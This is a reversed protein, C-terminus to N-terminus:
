FGIIGAGAHDTPLGLSQVAGRLLGTIQRSRDADRAARLVAVQQSLLAALVATAAPAAMSTGSMVGYSAAPLCSVIGLGPAAGAIEPGINSFAAVFIERDVPSFPGMVDVGESSWSPFTGIKGLASIAIAVPWRAPYSVSKRGGNGAAVVAVTGREFASQLASEVAPDPSHLELSLNILDCGDDVARDIARVVDYSSAGTGANPFVRYSMISVGAAIGRKGTLPSGRGAIIGAVHTGHGANVGAPGSDGADGEERVFVSGGDVVIDPHRADVGTDIIGVKVGRGSSLGHDGYVTSMFDPHNLDIRSLELTDGNAIPMARAFHGWYGPPGYVVLADLTTSEVGLELQVVGM